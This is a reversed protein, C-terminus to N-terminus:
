DLNGVGSQVQLGKMSNLRTMSNSNLNTTMQETVKNPSFNPSSGQAPQTRKQQQMSSMVQKHQRQTMPLSERKGPSRSRQGRLLHDISGSPAGGQNM